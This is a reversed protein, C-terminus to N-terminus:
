AQQKNLHHHAYHNKVKIVGGGKYKSIYLHPIYLSKSIYLDKIYQHPILVLNMFGIYLSNKKIFSRPLYWMSSLDKRWDEDERM